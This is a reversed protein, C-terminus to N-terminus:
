SLIPVLLVFPPHSVWPDGMELAAGDLVLLHLHMQRLGRFCLAGGDDGGPHRPQLHAPGVEATVRRVEMFSQTKSLPHRFEKKNQGTDPPPACYPTNQVGSQVGNHAWQPAIRWNQPESLVRTAPLRFTALGQLHQQQPAGIPPLKCTPHTPRIPAGHANQPTAVRVSPLIMNVHDLRALYGPRMQAGMFHASVDGSGCCLKILGPNSICSPELTAADAPLSGQSVRHRTTYSLSVEGQCIGPVPAAAGTPVVQQLHVGLGLGLRTM